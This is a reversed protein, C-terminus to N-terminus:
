VVESRHFGVEFSSCYFFLTISIASLDHPIHVFSSSRDQMEVQVGEVGADLLAVMWVIAALGDYHAAGGVPAAHHGGGGVLSASVTESYDVGNVLLLQFERKGLVFTSNKDKGLV